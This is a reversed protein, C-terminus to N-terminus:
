AVERQAHRELSLTGDADFHLIFDKSLRKFLLVNRWWTQTQSGDSYYGCGECIFRIQGFFTRGQAHRHNGGCRPCDGRKKKAVPSFILPPRM